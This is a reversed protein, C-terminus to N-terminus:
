RAAGRMNRVLDANVNNQIGAIARAAAGPDGPTSVNITTKANM